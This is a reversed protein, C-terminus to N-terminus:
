EVLTMTVKGDLIQGAIPVNKWETVRKVLAGTKADLWVTGKTSAPTSGATETASYDVKVTERSGVTESGAVTFTTKTDRTGKAEDGTTTSEWTTGASVEGQPWVFAELVAMRWAGDDVMDGVVNAVQGTPGYTITALAGVEAPADMENGDMVLKGDQQESSTEITGDEGVRVIKDVMTARYTIPNGAFETQVELTYRLTEGATATRKLTWASQASALGAATVLAILAIARTM